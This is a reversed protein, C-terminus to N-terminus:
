EYRIQAGFFRKEGRTKKRLFHFCEYAVLVNDTILRGPVFGSQSENIIAPLILKLRNALVKSVMKYIVNCLSIPRFDVPSECKKKKPILVIYIQNLSGIEGNNNLIDLVKEVM